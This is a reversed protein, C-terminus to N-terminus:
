VRVLHEDNLCARVALGAGTVLRARLREACDLLELTFPQGFRPLEVHDFEVVASVDDAPRKSQTAGVMGRSTPGGSDDSSRSRGTTASDWHVVM